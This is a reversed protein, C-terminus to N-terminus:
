LIYLNSFLGNLFENMVTSGFNCPYTPFCFLIIILLIVSKLILQEHMVEAFISVIKPLYQSHPGLIETDSRCASITIIFRLLMIRTPLNGTM